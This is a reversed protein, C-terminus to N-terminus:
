SLLDGGGGLSARAGFVRRGRDDDDIYAGAFDLVGSEGVVACTVRRSPADLACCPCWLRRAGNSGGGSPPRTNYSYTPLREPALITHQVADNNQLGTTWYRCSAHRIQCSSCSSARSPATTEDIAPALQHHDTLEQEHVHICTDAFCFLDYLRIRACNAILLGVGHSFLCFSLSRTLRSSLHLHPGDLGLGEKRCFFLDLKGELSGAEEGVLLGVEVEDSIGGSVPRSSGWGRTGRSGGGGRHLLFSRGDAGEKRPARTM